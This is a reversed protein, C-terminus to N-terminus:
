ESILSEEMHAKVLVSVRNQQILSSIACEICCCSAIHPDRSSYAASNHQSTLTKQDSSVKFLSVFTDCIRSEISLFADTLEYKVRSSIHLM